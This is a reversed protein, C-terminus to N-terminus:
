KQPIGGHTGSTMDIESPYGFMQRIVPTLWEANEKIYNLMDSKAKKLCQNKYAIESRAVELEAKLKKIKDTHTDIKFLSSSITKKGRINLLCFWVTYAPDQNLQIVKEAPYSMKMILNTKDVLEGFGINHRKVNLNFPKLLCEVVDNGEGDKKPCMGYVMAEYGDVFIMKGWARNGIPAVKIDIREDFM